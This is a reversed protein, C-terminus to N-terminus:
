NPLELTADNPGDDDYMSIPYGRLASANYRAKRQGGAGTIARYPLWAHKSQVRRLFCVVELSPSLACSLIDAHAQFTKYLVDREQACGMHDIGGLPWLPKPHDAYDLYLRLVRLRTLPALMSGLEEVNIDGADLMRYRYITLIELNPFAVPLFNLFEADNRDQEYEIELNKIHPSQARASIALLESSTSVPSIWQYSIEDLLFDWTKCVHHRRWCRLTLSSLTPPLHVFIQDDSHPYTITLVRLSKWPLEAKVSAPWLPQYRAHCDAILKLVLTELVPLCALSTIIPEPLAATLASQVGELFLYRLRTCPHYSLVSAFRPIAETSLTLTELTGFAQEIVDTVIAAEVKSPVAPRLQRYPRPHNLSFSILPAITFPRDDPVLQDISEFPGFAGFSRLQPVSLIAHFVEWRPTYSFQRDVFVTHLLPMQQLMNRFVAISADFNPGQHLADYQPYAFGMQFHITRIHPWITRPLRECFKNTNCPRRCTVREFIFPKCIERLWKCTLSLNKMGGTHRMVELIEIVIDDNLYRLSSSARIRDEYESQFDAMPRGTSCMHSTQHREDVTTSCRLTNSCAPTPAVPPRGDGNGGRTQRAYGCESRLRSLQWQTFNGRSHRIAREM